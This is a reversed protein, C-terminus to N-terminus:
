AEAGNQQRAARADSLRELRPKAIQDRTLGTISVIRDELDTSPPNAGTEVRSVTAETTGFREAAEALTM